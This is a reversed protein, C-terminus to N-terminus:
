KLLAAFGSQEFHRDGTLANKVKRERMIVPSACDTLTWKKDAHQHFYFADAFVGSRAPFSRSRLPGPQCRPRLAFRRGHRRFAAQMVLKAGRVALGKAGGNGWGQV